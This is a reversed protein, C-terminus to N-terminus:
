DRYEEELAEAFRLLEEKKVTLSIAINIYGYGGDTKESFNISDIYFIIVFEEDDKVKKCECENDYVRNLYCEEPMVNILIDPEIFDIFAFRNQLVAEKIDRGVYCLPDVNAYIKKSDSLVIPELFNKGNLLFEFSNVYYKLEEDGYKLVKVKEKIIRVEFGVEDKLSVM